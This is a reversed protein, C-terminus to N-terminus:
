SLLKLIQQEHKQKLVYEAYWCMIDDYILIWM